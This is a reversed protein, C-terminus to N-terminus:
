RTWRMLVDPEREENDTGDTRDVEEFQHDAYFDRAAKNREFVWLTLSPTGLGQAVSLLESGIGHAQHAPDVYLHDIQEGKVCMFGVVKHDVLAVWSNESSLTASFFAVDDEPTHLGPLWPMAAERAARSVAAVAPADDATAPRLLVGGHETM